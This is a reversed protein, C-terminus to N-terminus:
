FLNTAHGTQVPIYINYIYDTMMTPHHGSKDHLPQSNKVANKQRRKKSTIRSNQQVSPLNNWSSSTDTAVISLIYHARREWTAPDINFTQPHGHFNEKEVKHKSEKGYSAM